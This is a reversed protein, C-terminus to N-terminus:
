LSLDWLQLCVVRQRLCVISGPSKQEPCPKKVSQPSCLLPAQLWDKKLGSVGLMVAIRLNDGIMVESQHFKSDAYLYVMEGFLPVVSAAKMWASDILGIQPTDETETVDVTRGCRIKTSTLEFM